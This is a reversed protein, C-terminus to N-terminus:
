LGDAAPLGGGDGEGEAGDGGECCDRPFEAAAGGELAERVQLHLLGSTSLDLAPSFQAGVSMRRELVKLTGPDLHQSGFMLGYAVRARLFLLLFHEVRILFCVLFM